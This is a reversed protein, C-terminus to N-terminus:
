RDDTMLDPNRPDPEKPGRPLLFSIDSQAALRASAKGRPTDPFEKAITRYVARAAEYDTKWKVQEAYTEFDAQAREMPETAPCRLAFAKIWLARERIEADKTSAILRDCVEIARRSSLYPWHFLIGNYYNEDYRTYVCEAAELLVAESEAGPPLDKLRNWLEVHLAHNIRHYAGHNGGSTTEQMRAILSRVRPAESEPPTAPRSCGAAAVIAAALATGVRM